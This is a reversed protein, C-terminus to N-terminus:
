LFNGLENIIHNKDKIDFQDFFSLDAIASYIM